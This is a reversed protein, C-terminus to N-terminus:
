SFLQEAIANSAFSTECSNADPPTLALRHNTLSCSKPDNVIAQALGVRQMMGKSFTRIQKSAQAGLGVRELLQRVRRRLHSEPLGCLRGHFTVLEAASLWDYFRFHEPLFGIRARVERSGLPHGLLLGHGGSPRVLVLM